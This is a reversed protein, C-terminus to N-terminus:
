GACIMTDSDISGGYSGPENCADDSVVPVKVYQLINSVAGGFTEVGWGSVLTDTWGEYKYKQIILLIEFTENNILHTECKQKCHM